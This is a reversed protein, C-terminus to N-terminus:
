LIQGMGGCAQCEVLDPGEPLPVQGSGNCVPCEIDYARAVAMAAWPKADKLWYIPAQGYGEPIVPEDWDPYIAEEAVSAAVGRLDADEDAQRMVEKLAEAKKKARKRKSGSGPDIMKEAREYIATTLSGLVADVAGEKEDDSLDEWRRM